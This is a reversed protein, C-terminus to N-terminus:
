AFMVQMLQVDAQSDRQLANDGFAQNLNAALSSSTANVGAMQQELVQVSSTLASMYVQLHNGSLLLCTTMAAKSPKEPQAQRLATAVCYHGVVVL